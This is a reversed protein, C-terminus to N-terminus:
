EALASEIISPRVISIPVDGASETLAVEGLAKTYAYADPFGLSSARSRGAEAMRDEVWRTRLLETKASLAPVGAAGLEKHADNRFGALKEPTRSATETESRIRRASDVESRWDVDVFFPSQNVPEEAAAGRRSGAVYCTSVAVLHPTIGLGRLTEVIRVSGLLNIEVAQDLPSDFSVIAASHIFLDCGSLAARGEDDLGLGDDTVDGAVATIRRAAMEEFAEKGLESRLRDFADNHLIDRSVRREAGRRGPRVILVLECDPVSRLIREVLATGLFGTSGTIAIRRGALSEAIM